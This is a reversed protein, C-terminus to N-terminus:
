TRFGSSDLNSASFGGRRPIRSVSALDATLNGYWELALNWSRMMCAQWRRTAGPVSRGAVPLSGSVHFTAPAPLAILNSLSWGSGQVELQLNVEADLLAILATWVQTKVARQASPKGCFDQDELEAQAGQLVAGGALPGQLNAAITTAGLQLLSTLSRSPNRSTKTGSRVRRFLCREEGAKVQSPFWILQGQARETNQPV